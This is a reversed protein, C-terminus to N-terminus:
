NFLDSVRVPNGWVGSGNGDIHAFLEGTPKNYYLQLVSNSAGVMNIEGSAYDVNYPVTTSVNVCGYNGHCLQGSVSRGRLDIDNRTSDLYIYGAQDDRKLDTEVLVKIWDGNILGRTVHQLGTYVFYNANTSVSLGQFNVTYDTYTGTTGDRAAVDITVVGQKRFLGPENVCDSYSVKRTGRSTNTDITGSIFMSGSIDCAISGTNDYASREQSSQKNNIKEFDAVIDDSVADSSIDDPPLGAESPRYVYGLAKLDSEYISFLFLFIFQAANTTSIPALETNGQSETYAKSGLRAAMSSSFSVGGSSATGSGTTTGGGGGGGCAVLVSSLLTVTM